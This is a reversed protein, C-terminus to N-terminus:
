IGEQLAHLGLLGSREMTSHSYAGRLQMSDPYYDASNKHVADQQSMYPNYLGVGELDKNIIEFTACAGSGPM